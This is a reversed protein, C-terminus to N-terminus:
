QRILESFDAIVWRGAAQRELQLPGRWNEVPVDTRKLAVSIWVRAGDAEIIPAEMQTLKAFEIGQVEEDFRAPAAKRLARARKPDRRNLAAYYDRIATRIATEDGGAEQAPRASCGEICTLRSMSAIRWDRGDQLDLDIYGRWTRAPEQRAKGQIEVAASLGDVGRPEFGDIRIALAETNQIARVVKESPWKWFSLALPFDRSRVAEAYDLLMQRARDERRKQWVAQLPLPTGTATPTPAPSPRSRAVTPNFFETLSLYRGDRYRFVEKRDPLGPGQRRTLTITADAYDHVPEGFAIDLDGALEAEVQEQYELLPHWGPEALGYVGILYSVVTPTREIVRAVIAHHDRGIRQWSLEPPELGHGLTGLYPYQQALRWGEGERRFVMAGILTACDRCDSRSGLPTAATLVIQRTEGGQHYLRSVLVRVLALGGGFGAADRLAPPPAPDAWLAAQWEPRFPGYGLELAKSAEFDGDFRRRAEATHCAQEVLAGTGVDASSALTQLAGAVRGALTGDDRFKIGELLRLSDRCDTTADHLLYGGPVTRILSLRVTGGADRRINSPYLYLGTAVGGVVIPLFGPFRDDM